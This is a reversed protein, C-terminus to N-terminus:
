FDQLSEYARYLEELHKGSLTVTTDSFISVPIVVKNKTVTLVNGFDSTVKIEKPKNQEAVWEKAKEKSAFFKWEEPNLSEINWKNLIFTNQSLLYWGRKEGTTVSYYEDGKYLDVGDESKIIFKPVEIGAEKAFTEFSILKYSQNSVTREDDFRWQTNPRKLYFDDRNPYNSQIGSWTCDTNINFHKKLINIQRQNSFKIAVKGDLISKPEEIIEAWQGETFLCNCGIGNLNSRLAYSDWTYCVKDNHIYDKCGHICKAKKNSFRRIAEKKLAEFVETENALIPNVDFITKDCNFETTWNGDRSFGYAPNDHGQFNVLAKGFALKYWKGEEIVLEEKVPTLNVTVKQGSGLTIVDGDKLNLNEM